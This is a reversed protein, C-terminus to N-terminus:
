QRGMIWVQGGMMRKFLVVEFELSEVRLELSEVGTCLQEL